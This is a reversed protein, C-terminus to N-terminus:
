IEAAEYLMRWIPVGLIEIRGVVSFGRREYFAVSERRDTELYTPMGDHNARTLLANVLAVGVGSGQDTPDVGLSGLYWHPEMPHLVDLLEFVHRWRATVRWGKGLRYYLRTALPLPPVPYISPPLAALAGVIRGARSAALVVGHRRAAPLM